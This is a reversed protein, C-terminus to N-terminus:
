TSTMRCLTEIDKELKQFSYQVIGKEVEEPSFIKHLDPETLLSGVPKNGDELTGAFSYESGDIAFRTKVGVALTSTVKTAISTDGKRVLVNSGDELGVETTTYLEPKKEGEKPEDPPKVEVVPAEVYLPRPVRPSLYGIQKPTLPKLISARPVKDLLHFHNFIARLKEKDEHKANIKEELKTQLWETLTPPEKKNCAELYGTMWGGVENLTITTGVILQNGTDSIAGQDNIRLLDRKTYDIYPNEGGRAMYSNQVAKVAYSLRYLFGHEPSTPEPIMEDIALIKRGDPLKKQEELAFERKKYAPPIEGERLTPMAGKQLLVKYMYEYGEPNDKSMEVYDVPIIEFERELAPPIPKNGHHGGVNGSGFIVRGPLVPKDTGFMTDGDKLAFFGKLRTFFTDNDFAKTIEDFELVQAHSRVPRSEYSYNYGTWAASVTERYDTFTGEEISEANPFVREKGLLQPDGIRPGCSVKVQDMGTLRSAIARIQGTKGTGPESILFVGKRTQQPNGSELVQMARRDIEERSPLWVFGEENFQRNHELAKEYEIMALADTNESTHERDKLREISRQAESDEEIEEKLEVITHKAETLDDPTKFDNQFLRRRIGDLTKKKESIGSMLTQWDKFLGPGRVSKKEVRAQGYTSPLLAVVEPDSLLIKIRSILRPNFSKESPNQEEGKITQVSELYVIMKQYLESAKEAASKKSYMKALLAEETAPLSEHRAIVHTRIFREIFRAAKEPQTEKQRQDGDVHEVSRHSSYESSM